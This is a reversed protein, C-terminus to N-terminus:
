GAWPGAQKARFHSNPSGQNRTEPDEPSSQFYGARVVSSTCCQESCLSHRQYHKVNRNKPSLSCKLNCVISTKLAQIRDPFVSLGVVLDATILQPRGVLGTLLAYPVSSFWIFINVFAERHSCPQTQSKLLLDQIWSCIQYAPLLHPQTESETSTGSNSNAARAPTRMQGSTDGCSQVTLPSPQWHRGSATRGPAKLALAQSESTGVPMFTPPLQGAYHRQHTHQAPPPPDPLATQGQLVRAQLETGGVGVGHCSDVSDWLVVIVVATAWKHEQLSAQMKRMELQAQCLIHCTGPM